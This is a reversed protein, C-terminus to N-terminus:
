QVATTRLMHLKPKLNAWDAGETGGRGVTLRYLEQAGLTPELKRIEPGRPSTLIKEEGNGM